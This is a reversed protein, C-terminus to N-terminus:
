KLKSKFTGMLRDWITFYLGFNYRSNKHHIDHEVSTNQWRGVRLLPIDFGLHVFTDYLIMITVFILLAYQHWPIIFMIIPIIGMTLISEFPHFAFACFPSPNKFSHHLLHVYKFIRKHHIIRHIWYSYADHLIIMLCISLIFYGWGFESIESYNKTLGTKLWILFLWIGSSYIFLTLVSFKIEKFIQDISPYQKQLKYGGFRPNKLVYLYIYPIGAILFYRLLLAIFLLLWIEFNGLSFLFEM